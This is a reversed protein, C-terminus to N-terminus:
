GARDIIHLFSGFVRGDIRGTEGLSAGESDAVAFLPEGGGEDLITAYHFEHGRFPIGTEGLPGPGLLRMARYGISRHGKELSTELPLLGAMEFRQGSADSLGRGIVMYGGCEGYIAAGRKAAARLGNLFARNAALRGAHLEPYGGPLYVADADRDPAEDALPSFPVLAAGFTQWGELLAPYAFTFARDRAVAIRNGLPFYPLTPTATTLMSNRAMAALAEIDVSASVLDAAHDLFAELAPHEGAQVLGLHREPVALDAEIPVSGLIPLDPLAARTAAEVMAAHRPNAVRNFIVGDLPV